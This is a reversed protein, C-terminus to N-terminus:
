ELGEDKLARYLQEALLPQAEKTFHGDQSSFEYSRPSERIERPPPVVTINEVLGLMKRERLNLPRIQLFLLRIDNEATTSVIKKGYISIDSKELPIEERYDDLRSSIRQEVIDWWEPEPHADKGLEDRMANRIDKATEDWKEKSVFDRGKLGIVVIDPNYGVGREKLFTYYDKMGWGPVAANIVQYDVSSSPSQDLKRELIETYRQESELGWGFTFSDGIVLIRTTNPPPRKQFAEDRLGKSNTEVTYVPIGRSDATTSLNSKLLVYIEGRPQYFIHNTGYREPKIVEQQYILFAGGGLAVGIITLVVVTALRVRDDQNLSIDLLSKDGIGRM